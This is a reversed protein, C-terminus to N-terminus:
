LYAQKRLWRMAFGGWIPPLYFTLLRYTLAIAAATASPIGIATLCFALAAESVGIGGPVPMVGAFLSVLTNTLLLEAITASQGFARVTLGLIIALLFQATFNGGLLGALKTPSRIVRLAPRAEAVRARIPNRIKPITLAIVVLVLLLIGALILLKGNPDINLGDLSLDLTVLGSLLITILILVQVIFGFVSDILGITLAQAAPAGEKQFFRVNMAVRAASSPVALAIFQVAYELAVVPGLRLPLTSAGMTGFAQAVPVVPVVVLAAWIWAAEAQGLQQAIQDIGVDSIASFVFYAALLLVAITLLSGATVRRLPELKPPETGAAKAARDRIADLDREADKLSRRTSRTLAAPQVYPLVETLGDVGIERVAAAVAREDGALLATTVLLQARDALVAQPTASAAATEFDAIRPSGDAGVAVHLADLAGHAIGSEHMASVADWLQEVLRDTVEDPDAQGLLRGEAQIVLVGDRAGAVGAAIVPLVPVASREALLTVFAEHEVQQRRSLTVSPSEDRYWLYSWTSTLLQGDWADRGYVKVLLPLGDSREARLLAVGRPQLEAARLNTVEVGFEALAARVQNPSPLGGPSGFALHVLAASGFGIALGSFVGLPLAVGLAIGAISGLVIVWRGFRRVPRGLHPATTVILATALAVRVAPYVVPPESGTLGDVTTSWGGAFLTTVGLAFLGGLLQDRLLFLRRTAVVSSVLLVLPWAILLDHSIEWFWGLLGPLDKVIRSITGDAATPDPAFLSVFGLAVASGAFLIVDTPRRARDADTASSFFRISLDPKTRAIWSRPGRAGEAVAEDAPPRDDRRRTHRM